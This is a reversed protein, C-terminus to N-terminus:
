ARSSVGLARLLGEVSLKALEVDLWHRASALAVANSLKFRAFFEMESLMSFRRRLRRLKCSSAALSLPLERVLRLISVSLGVFKDM